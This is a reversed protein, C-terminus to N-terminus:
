PRELPSIDYKVYRVSVGYELALVNPDEGDGLRLQLEYRQGSTLKRRKYGGIGYVDSGFSRIRESM